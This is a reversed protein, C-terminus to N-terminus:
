SEHKSLRRDKQKPHFGIQALLILILFWIETLDVVFRPIPKKISRYKKFVKLLIATIIDKVEREVGSQYFLKYIIILVAYSVNGM